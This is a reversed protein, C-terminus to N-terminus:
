LCSKQLFISSVFCNSLKRRKFLYGTIVLNNINKNLSLLQYYFIFIIRYLRKKTSSIKYDFSITIHKYNKYLIKHNVFSKIYFNKTLYFVYCKDFKVFTINIFVFPHLHFFFIEKSIWAM